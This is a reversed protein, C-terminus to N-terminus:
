THLIHTEYPDSACLIEETFYFLFYQSKFLNSRTQSRRKLLSVSKLGIRFGTIFITTVKLRKADIVQAERQDDVSFYRECWPM